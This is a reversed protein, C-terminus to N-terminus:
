GGRGEVVRPCNSRTETEPVQTSESQDAEAEDVAQETVASRPSQERTRARLRMFLMFGYGCLLLLTTMVGLIVTGPNNIRSPELDDNIQKISWPYCESSIIIFIGLGVYLFPVFRRAYRQALYVVHRERMILWAALIWIGLLIYYVVIYVAIEAGKAQSFLPIYTGINDGGNMLTVSAVTAIAKLSTKAGLKAPPADMDKFVLGMLKWVGLSVPLLGLFGIPEPDFLFSAGYGAMSIIIIVSFGLYQGIAIKLPTLTDSTSAEAFFTVLVFIDDINTIAFSSCATALTQGFEM